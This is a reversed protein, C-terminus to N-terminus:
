LLWPLGCERCKKKAEYEAISRQKAKKTLTTVLRTQLSRVYNEYGKVTKFVHIMEKPVSVQGHGRMQAYIIFNGETPNRVKIYVGEETKLFYAGVNDQELRLPAGPLKTQAGESASRDLFDDPFQKLAGGLLEALLDVRPGEGHEEPEPNPEYQGVDFLSPENEENEGIVHAQERLCAIVEPLLNWRFRIGRKTPGEYTPRDVFERIDVAPLGDDEESPLTTIKIYETDSKAIRKVENEEQPPITKELRALAGILEYLLMKGLSLGAKTPGEYKQTAVFKRVNAFSRGRWQSVGFVLTSSRGLSLSAVTVDSM